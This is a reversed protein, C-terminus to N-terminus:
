VAGSAARALFAEHLRMLERTIPGPTGDGVVHDDVRVVPLVGRISSTLFLEDAALVDAPVLHADEIPIGAGRALEFVRRRTIGDLLGDGLAPTRIRGGAVLFVNSTSGEVVRGEANCMVAEDAGARKAEALAMINNLYNGSKVAPDMARRLNRRVAVLAIKAGERYLSEDPLRLPRVMVILRPRDALAPDLGIEGAGRTVIIRIYSDPNGAAGLTEQVAQIVRERPLVPLLIAESSRELRELHRDFDVPRGGATRLVEYVSDGYLFGRDFVPVSATKEDHIQGDIYIRIAV